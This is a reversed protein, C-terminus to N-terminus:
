RLTEAALSRRRLILFEAFALDFPTDIDVSAEAPMEYPLSTEGYLTDTELTAVDFVLVAPGNRAYIKPLDRHGVVHHEGSAYPELGAKGPRLVKLPHFIHPVDIVSVVSDPRHELFLEVAEDIHRAERLPSTPQLLVIADAPRGEGAMFAAAHRVVDMMLTQDGAIDAPRLFPVEIGFETAAAAIAEDNTSLIVRSLHRSQIAADCTYALLPRSACSALNKNPIRKSGGRAPILGVINPVIM